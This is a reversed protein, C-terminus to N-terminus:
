FLTYIFPTVAIVAREQYIALGMFVVVISVAPALWWWVRAGFFDFLGGLMVPLTRLSAPSLSETVRAVETTAQRYRLRWSLFLSRGWEFVFYGVITAFTLLYFDGSMAFHRYAGPSFASRCMSVAESL